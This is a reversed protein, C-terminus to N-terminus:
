GEGREEIIIESLPKGPAQGLTEALELREEASIPEIDSHGLPPTVLGAAILYQMAEEVEDVSKEPLLQLRVTQHERLKLSKLPRLWGNEYVATVIETM